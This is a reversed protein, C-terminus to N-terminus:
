GSINKYEICECDGTHAYLITYANRYVKQGSTVATANAEVINVVLGNRSSNTVLARLTYVKAEGRELHITATTNDLPVFGQPLRDSINIDLPAQGDNILLIYFTVIDGVYTDNVNASKSIRFSVKERTRNTVWVQAFDSDPLIENGNEDKGSVYAFNTYIGEKVLPVSVKCKITCYEGAGLYPRNFILHVRRIGDLVSYTTINAYGDSCSYKCSEIGSLDFGRPLIDEVSINYASINNPNSINLTYYVNGGPRVKYIDPWTGNPFKEIRLKPKEGVPAYGFNINTIYIINDSSVNDLANISIEIITPTTNYMNNLNGSEVFLTINKTENCQIKFRFKYNGNEDTVSALQLNNDDSLYIKVNPIGRECTLNENNECREYTGNENTDNFITGIIEVTKMCECVYENNICMEIYDIRSYNNGYQDKFDTFAINKVYRHTSDNVVAKIFLTISKNPLIESINFETPSLNVFGDPLNDKTSLNYVSEKGINEIYIAFEVIDGYKPNSNNVYKRFILAVPDKDFGFNIKKTANNWSLETTIEQPSTNHMGYIYEVWVTFNSKDYPINVTFEYDGTANTFTYSTSHMFRDFIYVKIANIGSENEYIGNANEDYYIKGYIKGEKMLRKFGFDVNVDGSSTGSVSTPTTNEFGYITDVSINFNLNSACEVGVIFKYMGNSDTRTTTSITNNNENKYQLIVMVDEIGYEDGDMIGNNNKDEFVYGTIFKNVHCRANSYNEDCPLTKNLYVYDIATARVFEGNEAVGEVVVQNINLSNTVRETVRIPIEITINEGPRLSVSIEDSGNLIEFGEPLYDKIHLLIPIDGTNEVFVNEVYITFKVTDNINIVSINSRKSVYISPKAFEGVVFVQASDSDPLIENGNEDKGSVSAFNT